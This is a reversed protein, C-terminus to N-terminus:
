PRGGDIASGRVPLRPPLKEVATKIDRIHGAADVLATVQQDTLQLPRGAADQLAKAAAQVASAAGAVQRAADSMQGVATPSLADHFAKLQRAVADASAGLGALGAPQDALPAAKGVVQEVQGSLALLAVKLSAPTTDQGALAASAERLAVLLPQLDPAGAGAGSARVAGAVAAAMDRISQESLRAQVRSMVGDPDKLTVESNSLTVAGTVGLVGGVALAAAATAGRAADTMADGMDRLLKTTPVRLGEQLPAAVSGLSDGADVGAGGGADVSDV